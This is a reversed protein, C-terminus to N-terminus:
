AAWRYVWVESVPKGNAALTCRLDAQQHNKPRYEFSLRHGGAASNPGLSVNTIEGVSAALDVTLPVQSCGECGETGQFDLVFLRNSNRWGQGVRTQVIRAKNSHAPKEWCWHLKYRFRYTGKEELKEKPRWFAVMNDNIEEASPLEVLDVSGEGWGGIPEVWVSPREGYHSELDQYESFNRTRQLLGFGKPNKDAFASFQLRQPNILPRWIWEDQGNWIALGESDHVRPRFDDRRIHSSPGLYFMSTLPAIGVYDLAKRPFLAADIDMVTTKGPTMVFKYAGTVSVSDLLAYVTIREDGPKPQEIWFARFMPFEEGAPRATNIALGRASLGYTQGAGVARFYSAGQFVAFEDYLNPKNIPTHIRFGAFGTTSQPPPPAKLLPGFNFLTTAYTLPIARGSNILHIQVPVTYLFGAHFFQLRFPLAEAKWVANEPRYRIDRYQDYTINALEQPLQLPPLSFPRRALTQAHTHLWEESFPMEGSTETQGWGTGRQLLMAASVAGALQLFNRRNM